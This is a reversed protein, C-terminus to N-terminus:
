AGMAPHPATIREHVSGQASPDTPHTDGGGGDAFERWAMPTPKRDTKETVVRGRKGFELKTKM